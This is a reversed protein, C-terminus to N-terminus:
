VLSVNIKPRKGSFLSVFVTRCPFLQNGDRSQPACVNWMKLPSQPIGPDLFSGPAASMGVPRILRSGKKVNNLAESGSISRIKFCLFGVLGVIVCVLFRELGQGRQDQISGEKMKSPKVQVAPWFEVSHVFLCLNPCVCSTGYHAVM